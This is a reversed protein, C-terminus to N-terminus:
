VTTVQLLQTVAAPNQLSAPKEAAEGALIAGAVVCNQSGSETIKLQLWQTGSPMLDARMEILAQKTSTSISNIVSNPVLAYAASQTSAAYLAATIVGGAPVAGVLVMGMARRFYLMNVGASTTTANTLTQPNLVGQLSLASTLQETYM